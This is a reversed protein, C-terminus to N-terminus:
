RLYAEAGGGEAGTQASADRLDRHRSLAWLALADNRYLPAHDRLWRYTPTRIM